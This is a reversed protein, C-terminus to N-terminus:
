KILRRKLINTLIAKGRKVFEDESESDKPMGLAESLETIVEDSKAIQSVAESFKEKEKTQLSSQNFASSLGGMIAIQITTTSPINTIEKTKIFDKLNNM